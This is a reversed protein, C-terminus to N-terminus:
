VIPEPAIVAHAPTEIAISKRKKPYISTAKTVQLNPITWPYLGFTVGVRCSWHNDPDQTLTTPNIEMKWGGLVKIAFFTQPTSETKELLKKFDFNKMNPIKLKLDSIAALTHLRVGGKDSDGDKKVMAVMRKLLGENYLDLFYAEEDKQHQLLFDADIADSNIPNPIIKLYPKPKYDHEGEEVVEVFPKITHYRLLFMCDMHQNEIVHEKLAQVQLPYFGSSAKKDSFSFEFEEHFSDIFSQADQFTLTKATYKCKVIQQSNDSSSPALWYKPYMTTM